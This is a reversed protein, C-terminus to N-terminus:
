AMLTITARARGSARSPSLWHVSADEVRLVQHVVQPIPRVDLARAHDAIDQALEM